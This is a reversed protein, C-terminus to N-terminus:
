RGRVGSTPDCEVEATMGPQIVRLRTAPTNLKAELIRAQTTPDVTSGMHRVVATLGKNRAKILVRVTAGIAACRSEGETVAFRVWLDSDSGSFPARIVTQAIEIRAHQVSAEERAVASRKQEVVSHLKSVENDAADLDAQSWATPAGHLRSAAKEALEHATMAEELEARAVSLSAVHVALESSLLGDDMVVLTDRASVRDGLHVCVAKIVGPVTASMTIDHQAFIIGRARFETAGNAPMAAALSLLWTSVITARAIM